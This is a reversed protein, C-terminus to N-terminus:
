PARAAPSIIVMGRRGPLSPLIHEVLALDGRWSWVEKLEPGGWARLRYDAWVLLETSGDGNLDAAKRLYPDEGASSRRSREKGRDDLVVIKRANFSANFNVCVCPPGAPDLRALVMSPRHNLVEARSKWTWDPKGDRGDFVRVQLEGMNAAFHQDLLVVTLRGTGHLDGIEIMSFPPYGLRLPQSWLRRGDRLSVAM